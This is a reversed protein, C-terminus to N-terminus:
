KQRIDPHCVDVEGELLKLSVGGSNKGVNGQEFDRHGVVRYGQHKVGVQRDSAVTGVVHDLENGEEVEVLLTGFRDGARYVM